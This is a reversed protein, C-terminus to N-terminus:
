KEEPEQPPPAPEEVEDSGSERVTLAALIRDSRSDRCNIGIISDVPVIIPKEGTADPSPKSEESM